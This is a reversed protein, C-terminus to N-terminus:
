KILAVIRRTPIHVSEDAAIPEAHDVDIACRLAGGGRVHDSVGSPVADADAVDVLVSGTRRRPRRERRVKAERRRWHVSSVAVAQGEFDDIRDCAIRQRPLARLDESLRLEIRDPRECYGRATLEQYADTAGACEAVVNDGCWVFHLDFRLKRSMKTTGGLPLKTM